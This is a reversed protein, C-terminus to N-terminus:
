RSEELKAELQAQAEGLMEAVAFSAWKMRLVALTAIVDVIADRESPPPRLPRGDLTRIDIGTTPLGSDDGIAYMDQGPAQQPQSWPEPMDARPPSVSPEFRLAKAEKEQHKRSEEFYTTPEHRADHMVPLRDPDPRPLVYKRRNTM